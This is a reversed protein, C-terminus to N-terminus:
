FGSRRLRIEGDFAELILRGGGAGITFAMEQGSRFGRTRVPFDSEFEGEYALVTVDLDIPDRLELTLDGSHSQFSVRGGAHLQGSFDIEGSTTRASIGRPALDTLEMDGSVTQLVLEGSSDMVTLEGDGTRLHAVGGLGRAVIEGEVTVVDVEGPLDELVLDGNLNRIKVTGAVGRIEADLNRGSFELSLWEPVRLRLEGTRNRNKRDSVRMEVRSGSREFEFEAAVDSDSEAELVDRGWVGVYVSGTFDELVLRDGERLQFVTDRASVPNGLLLAALILELM